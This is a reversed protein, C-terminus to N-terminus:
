LGDARQSQGDSGEETIDEVLAKGPYDGPAVFELGELIAQAVELLAPTEFTVRVGRRKCYLDIEYGDDPLGRVEVEVGRDVAMEIADRLKM